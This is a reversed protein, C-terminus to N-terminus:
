TRYVDLKLFHTSCSICPDYNRIAQECEWQLRDDPLDVRPKVFELLDQEIRAQNQSTPPVIRAEAISGDAELRYRHWLMGRPAESWGCGAAARPEPVTAPPKPPVYSAILALAEDFAHILEVARVLISKFSNRCEPGLGAAEAAERAGDSLQEYNLSYRAMPGLFYTGGDSMRSQLATSHPVHQESFHEEYEGPGIDIGSSSVLRGDEIAYRDPDRLAVFEYDQEFDPFDLGALFGAAAVGM